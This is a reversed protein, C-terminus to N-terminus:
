HVPLSAAVAGLVICVHRPTNGFPNSPQWFPFPFFPFFFFDLYTGGGERTPPVSASAAGIGLPRTLGPTRNSPAPCISEPGTSFCEVAKLSLLSLMSCWTMHESTNASSRAAMYLIRGFGQSARGAGAFSSSILRPM